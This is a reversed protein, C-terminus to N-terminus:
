DEEEEEAPPLWPSQWPYLPEDMGDYVTNGPRLYGLTIFDVVGGVARVLTMGGGQMAGPIVGIVPYEVSYYTLGRPIELWGLTINAFGRGIGDLMNYGDEAEESASFAAVSLLLVFLLLKSKKM